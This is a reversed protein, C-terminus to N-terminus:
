IKKETTSAQLQVREGESVLHAGLALIQEGLKLGSRILATESGLKAVVVPRRVLTATEPNIIWM